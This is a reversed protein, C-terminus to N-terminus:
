LIICCCDPVEKPRPGRGEYCPVCFDYITDRCIDCHYSPESSSFFRLCRACGWPGDHYRTFHLEHRHLYDGYRDEYKSM